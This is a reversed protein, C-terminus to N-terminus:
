RPSSLTFELLTHSVTFTRSPGPQACSFTVKCGATSSRPGKHSTITFIDTRLRPPLELYWNWPSIWRSFQVTETFPKEPRTSSFDAIKGQSFPGKWNHAFTTRSHISFRRLIGAFGGYSPNEVQENRGIIRNLQKADTSKFCIGLNSSFYLMPRQSSRATRYLSVGSHLALFVAARSAPMYPATLITQRKPTGFFNSVRILHCWHRGTQNPLLSMSLHFVLLSKGLLLNFLM